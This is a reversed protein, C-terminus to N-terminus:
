IITSIYHYLKDTFLEKSRVFEVDRDIKLHICHLNNDIYNDDTYNIGIMKINNNLSYLLNYLNIIDNKKTIKNYINDFHNVSIFLASEQNTIIDFLRQYRRNYKDIFEQIDVENFYNTDNSVDHWYKFGYKNHVYYYKNGFQQISFDNEVIKHNMRNIFIDYLNNYIETIYTHGVYDFPFACKRLNNSFKSDISQCTYCEEGLPIIYEITNM